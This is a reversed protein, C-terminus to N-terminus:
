VSESARCEPPHSIGVTPSVASFWLDSQILHVLAADKIMHGQPSFLLQTEMVARNRFINVTGLVVEFNLHKWEVTHLLLERLIEGLSVEFFSPLKETNVNTQTLITTINNRKSKNWM